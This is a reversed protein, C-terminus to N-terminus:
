LCTKSKLGLFHVLSRRRRCRCVLQSYFLFRHLNWKSCLFPPVPLRLSSHHHMPDNYCIGLLMSHFVSHCKKGCITPGAVLFIVLIYLSTSRNDLIHPRWLCRFLLLRVESHVFLLNCSVPHAHLILDSRPVVRVDLPHGFQPLPTHFHASNRTTYRLTPGAGDAPTQKLPRQFLLCLLGPSARRAAMDAVSESSKSNIYKILYKITQTLWWSLSLMDTLLTNEDSPNSVCLISFCSWERWGALCM